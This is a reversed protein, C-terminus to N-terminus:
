HLYRGAWGDTVQQSRAPVLLRGAWGDTVDTPRTGVLYRGAWGDTVDSAPAALPAALASTGFMWGDTVQAATSGASADPMRIAINVATALAVVVAVTGIMACVLARRDQAPVLPVRRGTEQLQSM